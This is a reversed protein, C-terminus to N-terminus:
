RTQSELSRSARWFIKTENANSGSPVANSEEQSTTCQPIGKIGRAEFPLFLSDVVYSNWGEVDRNISQSVIWEKALKKRPSVVKSSENGLLWRDEYIKISQGDDVRWLMGFQIVKRAKLISQWAYSGSSIKAYFILGHPFYKAKFVWFFVIILPKDVVAM